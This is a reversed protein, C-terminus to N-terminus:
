YKAWHVKMLALLADRNEEMPYHYETEDLADLLAEIKEDMEDPDIKYARGLVAEQTAPPTSLIATIILICKEKARETISEFTRLAEDLASVGDYALDDVKDPALGLNIWSATDYYELSEDYSEVLNDLTIQYYWYDRYAAVALLLADTLDAASNLDYPKNRHKMGSFANFRRINENDEKDFMDYRGGSFFYGKVFTRYNM